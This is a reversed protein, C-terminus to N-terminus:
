GALAGVAPGPPRDTRRQLIVLAVIGVLELLHHAESGIDTDGRVLDLTSTTAIALGLAAAFPLLAAARWPQLAAVLLGVAVALDAAGVERMPHIADPDAGVALFMVPIALLLETVAVAGLVYRAWHPGPNPRLPGVAAVISMTLDPVAEAPRVRAVRHLATAETLFARCEECRVLHGDVTAHDFPHEEGDLDASVAERVQECRV